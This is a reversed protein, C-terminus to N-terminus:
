LLYIMDDYFKDYDNDIDFIEGDFDNEIQLQREGSWIEDRYGDMTHM